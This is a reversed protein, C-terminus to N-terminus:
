HLANGDRGPAERAHLLNRDVHLLLDEVGFLDHRGLSSNSSFSLAELMNTKTIETSIHYGFRIQVSNPNSIRGLVWIRVREHRQSPSSSPCHRNSQMSM